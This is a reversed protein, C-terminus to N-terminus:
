PVRPRALDRIANFAKDSADLLAAIEDFSPSESNSLAELRTELQVIASLANVLADGGATSASAGIESLLRDLSSPEEVVDLLPQFLKKIEAILTDLFSKTEFPLADIM